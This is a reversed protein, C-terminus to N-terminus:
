SLSSALVPRVWRHTGMGGWRALVMNRGPTDAATAVAAANNNNAGDEDDEDENSDFAGSVSRRKADTCRLKNTWITPNQKLGQCGGHNGGQQWDIWRNNKNAVHNVLLLM